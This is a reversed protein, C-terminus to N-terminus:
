LQVDQEDRNKLLVVVRCNIVVNQGEKTTM